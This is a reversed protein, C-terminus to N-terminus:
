KKENKGRLRRVHVSTPGSLRDLVIIATLSGLFYSGYALTMSQFKWLSALGAITVTFQAVRSKSLPGSRGAKRASRSKFDYISASLMLLSTLACASTYGFLTLDDGSLRTLLPFGLVALFGIFLILFAEGYLLRTDKRGITVSYAQKSDIVTRLYDVGPAAAGVVTQALRFEAVRGHEVRLSLALFLFYVFGTSFAYDAVFFGFAKPLLRRSQRLTGHDFRSGQPIARSRRLDFKLARALRPILGSLVFQLFINEPTPELLAILGVFLPLALYDRVNLSMLDGLCHDIRRVGNSSTAAILLPLWTAAAVEITASSIVGVLTAGLSVRVLLTRFTRLSPEHGQIAHPRIITHNLLGLILLYVVQMQAFRTFSQLDLKQFAYLTTAFSLASHLFYGLPTTIRLFGLKM